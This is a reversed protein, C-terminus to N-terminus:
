EGLIYQMGNYSFKEGDSFEVEVGREIETIKEVTKGTKKDGRFLEAGIEFFVEKPEKAPLFITVNKIM